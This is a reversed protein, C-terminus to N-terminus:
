IPHCTSIASDQTVEAGFCIGRDPMQAICTPLRKIWSRMRRIHAGEWYVRHCGPYQRFDSCWELVRSPVLASVEKKSVPKLTENCVMCRSLPHILGALDFLNVIEAMQRQVDTERLWYGRIVASHRLVGRDRTLLIRDEQSSIRVLDSDHSRNDYVVDFGLMRLYAALRGLHVDVVFKPEALPAPRHRLLSSIDISEFSPYVAVRDGDRILRSFDAPDGNVLVLDIEPHPVGLSEIMEKVSASVIFSKL